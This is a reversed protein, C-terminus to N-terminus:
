KEHQNPYLTTIVSGDFRIVRGRDVLSFSNAKLTGTPGQGEVPLNSQASGEDINVDAYETRFEYGGEYFLTVKDYLTLFKTQTNLEGSGADLALWKGDNQMLDARISQMTITQADKQVAKKATVKYPQNKSDLGQYAPSIMENILPVPSKKGSFVIRGSGEGSNDSAIWVVVGVAGLTLLMLFHKSLAVFRTYRAVPAVLRMMQGGRVQIVERPLPKVM